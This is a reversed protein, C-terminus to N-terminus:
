EGADGADDGTGDQRSRDLAVVGYSSVTVDFGELSFSISVGGGAGDRGQVLSALADADVVDHLPEIAAPEEDLTESVATVVAMGAPTSNPDYEYRHTETDEDYTGPGLEFGARTSSTM